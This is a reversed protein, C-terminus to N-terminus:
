FAVIQGSWLSPELTANPNRLSTTRHLRVGSMLILGATGKLFKANAPAQRKPSFRAHTEISPTAGGRM